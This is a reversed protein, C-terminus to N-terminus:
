SNLFNVIKIFIEEADDIGWSVPSGNISVYPLPLRNEVITSVEDIYELVEPSSIDVYRFDVGDLGYKKVLKGELKNAIDFYPDESV